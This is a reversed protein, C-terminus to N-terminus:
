KKQNLEAAIKFHKRADDLLGSQDYAIAINNHLPAHNPNVILAERLFKIALSLNGIMANSIGLNELLTPDTPNHKYAEMMYAIGGQINGLYRGNIEGIKALYIPNKVDYHLLTEFALLATKADKKRLAANGLIEMNNKPIDYNPNIELCNKYSEIAKRFEKKQYDANGKLLWAQMYLQDPYLDIAKDIHFLAEDLLKIKQISDQEKNALEILSGGYSTLCKMSNSSTKVDTAFLTQNNEWAKNRNITKFSYLLCIVLIITTSIFARKEKLPKLLRFVFYVTAITFALSSFYLFRENMFTGVNFILNSVISFPLLFSLILLSWKSQKILTWIAAFIMSCALTLGVLVKWDNWDKLAIQNPYYDHTLEIPFLLLIGYKFWTYAITAYKQSNEVNCFPNNLVECYSSKIGGNIVQTRLLLYLVSTGILATSLLILAKKNSPKILYALLIIIPLFSLANEKSLTGLFFIFVTGLLTIWNKNEIFKIAFYCTSLVALLAIIEDRGKINAIVETHLPHALFLLSALFPVSSWWKHKSPIIKQLLKFFVVGTFGYLLINILHSLWPAKNMLQWEIAFTIISLPRYRGGTVLNKQKGFFGHFSDKSIIDPIGEFGKKTFANKLIVIDDDLAYDYGITQGYLIFAFLILLIYILRNNQNSNM